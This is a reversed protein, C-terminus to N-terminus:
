RAAEGGLVSLYGNKVVERLRAFNQFRAGAPGSASAREGQQRENSVAVDRGEETATALDALRQLSQSAVAAHKSETSALNAAQQKRNAILDGVAADPASPAIRSELLAQLCREAEERTAEYETLDLLTLAALTTSHYTLPAILGPNNMLQSVINSASVLLDSPEVVPLTLDVLIRLHWYCIHIEPANSPPFFSAPLTERFRELEGRLLTGYIPGSAVSFLPLDTPVLMVASIHGLIISLRALHYIHEGLLAQDEPYVVVSSDPILVPSSTSSAHWRDMIVLSWWLRRGLEDDADPDNETKMDRKKHLHLKMSYALGVASGLWVSQSLAGKSGSISSSRNGAEVAMLLMTQLYIINLPFSRASGSEIQSSLAILQAAKPSSVQEDRHQNPSPYSRVAAHLAEYFAERLTQPCAILRSLVRTKSTSLIPFTSHVMKFYGDVISEDWDLVHDPHNSEQAAAEFANNSRHAPEPAIRWQPNPHLGSPSYNPERFIHQEGSAPQSPSFSPGPHPVHRQPEPQTWTPLQRQAVLPSGYQESGSVASYQRKRPNETPPSYEESIRPQNDHQPLYQPAVDSGQVVGELTVIRDALEKIYGKSPGRKMPVRSFQCNNGVRKCNSCQDDGPEGTADCKVKKRRCEDCARSVKSRKRPAMTGDQPDYQAVMQNMSGHSAHLHAAHAQEQEYQHNAHSQGQSRGDQDDAMHGGPGSTMMPALNRSLQATLQLDDPTPLSPQQHQQQQQNSSSSFFPGQDAAVTNPSPYSQM